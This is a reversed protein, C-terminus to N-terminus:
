PRARVEQSVERAVLRLMDNLIESIVPLLDDMALLEHLLGNGNVVPVRRIGQSGM